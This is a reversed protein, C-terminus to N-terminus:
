PPLVNSEDTAVPIQIIKADYNVIKQLEEMFHKLDIIEKGM